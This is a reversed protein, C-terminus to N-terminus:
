IKIGQEAPKLFWELAKDTNAEVGRGTLYCVALWYQGNEDNDKASKEFWEVAKTLNKQMGLGKHFCYGNVFLNGSELAKRAWTNKLEDDRQNQAHFAMAVVNGSLAAKKMWEHGKQKDRGIGWGGWLFADALVFLAKSNLLKASKLLHFCCLDVCGEKRERTAIMLDKNSANRILERFGWCTQKLRGINIEDANCIIMEWVDFPVKKMPYEIMCTRFLSRADESKEM